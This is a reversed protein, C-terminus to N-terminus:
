DVQIVILLEFYDCAALAFRLLDPQKVFCILDPRVLIKGLRDAFFPHIRLCHLYIALISRIEDNASFVIPLFFHLIPSAVLVPRGM